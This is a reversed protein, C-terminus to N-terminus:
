NEETQPTEKKAKRELYKSYAYGGALLVGGAIACAVATKVTSKAIDAVIEQGTAVTDAAATVNDM